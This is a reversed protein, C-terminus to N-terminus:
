AEDEALMDLDFSRSGVLPEEAEDPDIPLANLEEETRVFYFRADAGVDLEVPAGCRDCRAALKASWRFRASPRGRDDTDFWARYRLVGETRALMPALRGADRIPLEGTVDGGTRALEFVDVAHQLRSDSAM